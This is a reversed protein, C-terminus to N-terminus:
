HGTASPRLRVRASARGTRPEGLQGPQGRKRELEACDPGPRGPRGAGAGDDHYRGRDAADGPSIARRGGRRRWRPLACPWRAAVARCPWAAQGGGALRRHEGSLQEGISLASVGAAVGAAAALSRVMPPAASQEDPAPEDPLRRRREEELAWALALGVPIGVPLQAVRGGAELRRDLWSTGAEVLAFAAGGAGTLTTRWGAQRALGRVVAEGPRRPLARQVLLGAPILALDLLTAIDRQRTEPSEGPFRTALTTAAAEVADQGAVVLVYQLTTALGTIIGQDLTSRPTLSPEFTGPVTASALLLATQEGRGRLGALGDM